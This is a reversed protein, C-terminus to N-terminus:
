KFNQEYNMVLVEDIKGRKTAISNINRTASVIEIHYDKYLDKIFDTASNSLLVKCGRKDLDVFLDRLRIQEDKNFGGLTYGTFSATESVPDYPSDFYVFDGKKASSVADAFDGNLIKVENNNLYHSVARLVFENVINPNKYRGFPVNFQGQSNVRFLGNFCTKNLYILRSAKEVDSLKSFRNKDRDLDRIKYYYDSTNEHKRLDEILEDVNNKIVLYTNILESNIDNIVAKKPQLDFLVAGGGLFPEYYTGMRKPIYKRIEPLLQRKGGAWKLFPQIVRSKTM